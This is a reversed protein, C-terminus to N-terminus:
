TRTDSQKAIQATVYQASANVLRKAVTRCAPLDAPSLNGNYFHRHLRDAQATDSEWDISPQEQSLKGAAYAYYSHGKIQWEPHFDAAAIFNHAVAGWLLEAAILHNGEQDFEQDSRIALESSM